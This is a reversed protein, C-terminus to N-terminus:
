LDCNMRVLRNIQHSTLADPDHPQESMGAHHLAEHILTMAAREKSLTSFRRCVRTHVGGVWTFAAASQCITQEDMPHTAMYMTTTLMEVGDADLEAFLGACRPIAQVRELALWYGASLKEIMKESTIMATTPGASAGTEASAAEAVSDVVGTDEQAGTERPTVGDSAGVVTVSTVIIGVVIVFLRAKM